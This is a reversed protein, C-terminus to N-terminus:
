RAALGAAGDPLGGASSVQTLSGNAGTRFASITGDGANRVFLFRGNRSLGSDVPVNGTAASVNVLTLQGKHAVKYSSVTNSGTNSVYAFRGDNTAAIWCAGTQTDGVGATVDALSGDRKIAYSSLASAGSDGNAADSVLAVDNHGFVFGFPEAVSSPFAVGSQAVGNSLVFTDIQSTGKETAVLVKEGPTFAVEAPMSASGGSLPQTSGALSALNGSKQDITFGSINPTGGANVVYLLNNRVTLSVPMTGGSDVTNLAVLKDGSIKFASISNSGANVAFLLNGGGSLVIPNQSGLPDPGSGAGNGGTAVSDIFTLNGATDRHFVLVSNGDPQNSLTYVNGTDGAAAPISAAVAQTAMVPVAIFASLLLLRSANRRHTSFAM